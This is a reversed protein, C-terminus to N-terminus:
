KDNGNTINVENEPVTIKSCNIYEIPLVYPFLIIFFNGLNSSFALLAMANKLFYLVVNIRMYLNMYPMLFTLGSTIPIARTGFNFYKIRFIMADITQALEIAGRPYKNALIRSSVDDPICINWFSSKTM